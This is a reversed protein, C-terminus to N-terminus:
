RLVIDCDLLSSILNIGVFILFIVMFFWFSLPVKDRFLKFQLQEDIWDIQHEWFFKYHAYWSSFLIQKSISVSYYEGEIRALIRECDSLVDEDDTGKAKLYASKLENFLKTLSKGAEDYRGKETSYFGVYLSVVGLIIFITSAHQTALSSFALAAIGFSISSLGILGPIKEVIDLTAFHLKAGFGVDYARQALAKLLDAKTM